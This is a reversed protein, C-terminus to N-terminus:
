FSRSASSLSPAPSNLPFSIPSKLNSWLQMIKILLSESTFVSRFFAFGDIRVLRIAEGLNDVINHETALALVLLPKPIVNYGKGRCKLPPERPLDFEYLIIDRM